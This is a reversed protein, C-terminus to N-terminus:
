KNNSLILINKVFEKKDNSTYKYNFKSIKKDFYASIMNTQRETSFDEWYPTKRIKDIIETELDEFISVHSQIETNKGIDLDSLKEINEREGSHITKPQVTIEKTIPKSIFQIDNNKLTEEIEDNTQFINRNSLKDKFREALGM